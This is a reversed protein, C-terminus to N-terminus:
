RGVKRVIARLVALITEVVVVVERLPPIRM